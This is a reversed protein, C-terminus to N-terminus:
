HGRKLFTLNPGNPTGDVGNDGFQNNGFSKISASNIQRLGFANGMVNNNSLRIMSNGGTAFVGANGNGAFGSSFVNAIAMGTGGTPGPAGCDTGGFTTGLGFQSAAIGCRNGDFDTNRVTAVSIVGNGPAIGVGNGGNDFVDSKTLSLRSVGPNTVKFDIGNQSFDHIDVNQIKVTKTSGIIRVGNVGLASAPPGLNTNGAIDLNRLTVKATPDNVLDTINIIIGNVGSSLVSSTHHGGDITISKTITLAGFGGDDLTNIIGGRATKSIAGAFTKCPATRSCPNVDDGVGSVWTRTAQGFSASPLVLAVLILAPLLKLTRTLRLQPM